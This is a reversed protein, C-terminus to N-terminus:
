SVKQLRSIRHELHELAKETDPVILLKFGKGSSQSRKLVGDLLLFAGNLPLRRNQLLYEVVDGRGPHRWLPFAAKRVEFILHAVDAQPWLVIALGHAEEFLCGFENGAQRSPGLRLVERPERRDPPGRHCEDTEVVWRIGALCRVPEIM